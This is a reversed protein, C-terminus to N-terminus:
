EKLNGHNNNNDKSKSNNRRILWWSSCGWGKDKGKGKDTQEKLM